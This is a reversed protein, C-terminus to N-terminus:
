TATYPDAEMHSVTVSILTFSGKIELSSLLMVPRWIGLLPIKTELVESTLNAHEGEILLLYILYISCDTGLPNRIIFITWSVGLFLNFSCLHHTNCPICLLFLWVFLYIFTGPLRAVWHLRRLVSNCASM